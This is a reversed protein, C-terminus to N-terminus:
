VLSLSNRGILKCYERTCYEHHVQQSHFAAVFSFLSIRSLVATTQSPFAPRCVFSLMRLAMASDIIGHPILINGSRLFVSFGFIKAPSQM